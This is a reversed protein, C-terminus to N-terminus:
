TLIISLFSKHKACFSKLKSNLEEIKPQLSNNGYRQIVSSIIVKINPNIERITDVIDKYNVLSDKTSSNILDNTGAHIILYDPNRFALPRIFDIVDETTAGPFAHVKTSRKKNSLRSREIHNLMSDGAITVKTKQQINDQENRPPARKPQQRNSSNSQPKYTAKQKTKITTNRRNQNDHNKTKIDVKRPQPIKDETKEILKQKLYNVKRQLQITQMQNDFAPQRSPSDTSNDSASEDSESLRDLDLLSDYKNNMNIKGWTPPTIEKRPGPKKPKEM